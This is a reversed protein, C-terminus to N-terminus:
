WNNELIAKLQDKYSRSSKLRVESQLTIYYEGNFHPQLEKIRDLNIFTSRHIRLFQQPDLKGSLAQMSEKLLHKQKSTHLTVYDGSAEIWDIDTVQLLIMKQRNKVWVRNIYQPATLPSIAEQQSAKAQLREYDALLSELKNQLATQQHGQLFHFVQQMAQGFRDEDFPKLLYDIANVEFAKLAYQDYATIFVIASPRFRSNKIVGFGNLDPMQIDLFLLDPHQTDVMEVAQKGNSAEGVVQVQPFAKLMMHIVDRALVEDDVILAKYTKM